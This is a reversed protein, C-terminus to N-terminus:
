RRCQTCVLAYRAVGSSRGARIQMLSGCRPCYEQTDPTGGRDVISQCATCLTTDPFLEMREAPIMQGCAACPQGVEFDDAPGDIEEVTLGGAGCAPCPWKDVVTRALALLYDLDKREDRSARKLLGAGQLRLILRESDSSETHRCAPCHFSILSM